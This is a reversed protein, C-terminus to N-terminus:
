FIEKKFYEHRKPIKFSGPCRQNEFAELGHEEILRSNGGEFPSRRHGEYSGESRRKLHVKVHEEFSDNVHEEFSGRAQHAPM